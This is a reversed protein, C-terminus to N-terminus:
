GRFPHCSAVEWPGDRYYWAALGSIALPRPKFGMSLSRQLARAAMPEVKNQVTVHPRWPTRDQPTLLSHFADALADRIDELMPSSVILATGRGLDMIGTITAEPPRARAAEALRGRLEAAVSPPLHHFLTLHAELRNREPPYHESRLATLWAHDRAGFLASM